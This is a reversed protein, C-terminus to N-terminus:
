LLASTVLFLLAESLECMAGLTDGTICGLRKKYFLVMAWCIIVFALNLAVCAWGLLISFLAVTFFPYFTSIGVEKEFFDRATGMKRCYPLYRMGILMSTRSYAPVLCLCLFRKGGLGYIGGWKIGIVCLLALVGMTGMRSDKMIELARDVSAGSFIGDAADGLGDLHLGGTLLIFVVVDLFSVVGRPFVMYFIHDCSAVIFGLVVGVVPFFRKMATADFDVKVPLHLTSLFLLAAWFDNLGRQIGRSIMEERGGM